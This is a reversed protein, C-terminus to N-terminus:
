RRAHQYIAQDDIRRLRFRRSRGQELYRRALILHDHEGLANVVLTVNNPRTDSRTLIALKDNPLMVIHQIEPRLDISQRVGNNESIVRAVTLPDVNDSSIAVLKPSDITFVDWFTGPIVGFAGSLSRRYTRGEVDFNNRTGPIETGGDFPGDGSLIFTLPENAM